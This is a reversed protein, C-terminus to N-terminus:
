DSDYIRYWITGSYTVPAIGSTSLSLWLSNLSEISGDEDTIGQDGRITAYTPNATITVNDALVNHWSAKLGFEGPTTIPETGTTNLTVTETGGTWDTSSTDENYDGNAIYTVPVTKPNATANDSTLGLPVSGWDVTGIGGVAIEGYWNMEKGYVSDVGFQSSNRIAKGQADWDDIGSAPTERAVIGVNFAFIWSGTTANLNPQTCNDSVIAWSTSSGADINWVPTTAVTCTLIACNHLDGTTPVPSHSGDADYYLTVQVTQLHRLNNALSVDVKAYYQTLPDMFTTPDTCGIDNFIQIDTVQPTAGAAGFQGSTTGSDAAYAAPALLLVAALAAAIALKMKLM